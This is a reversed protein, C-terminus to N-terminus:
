LDIFLIPVQNGKKISKAHPPRIIYVNSRQFNALMSSDQKEFPHVINNNLKARIYDERIDNKPLDQGLEAHLIKPYENKNKLGLFKEIMPKLFLQSCVMSSVPNGPLGLFKSKNMTGYILPKGPRMAIKWFGIKLDDKLSKQILDYDGVSAGGLTVIIDADKALTLKDKISEITDKAIGCDIGEGGLNKIYSLIGYSNSTIIKYEADKSGPLVIEDGTSIVAIKPKKYVPLSTHNMSAALAIDKPKLLQGKNLLVQGKKFDLGKKRIHQFKKETNKIIIYKGSVIVNELIVVTVTGNPIIGGTFIRVAKDKPVKKLFPHGAPAEGIVEIKIPTKKISEFSIAYGDMSSNDYPPHSKLAKLNNSLVRNNAELLSVNQIDLPVINSLAKKISKRLNLLSM